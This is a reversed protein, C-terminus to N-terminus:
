ESVLLPATSSSILAPPLPAPTGRLYVCIAQLEEPKGQLHLPAVANWQEILPVLTPSNLTLETGIYGPSICNVRVNRRGM